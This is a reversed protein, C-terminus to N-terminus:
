LRDVMEGCCPCKCMYSAEGRQQAITPAYEWEGKEARWVCGCKPCDFQLTKKNKSPDGFKIIQM